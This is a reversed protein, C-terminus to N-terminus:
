LLTEYLRAVGNIALLFGLPVVLIDFVRSVFAARDGLTNTAHQKGVLCMLLAVLGLLSLFSVMGGDLMVDLTFENVMPSM